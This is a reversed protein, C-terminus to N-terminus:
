HTFAPAGAADQCLGVPDRALTPRLPCCPTVCRQRPPLRTVSGHQTFMEMSDSLMQTARWMFESVMCPPSQYAWASVRASCSM